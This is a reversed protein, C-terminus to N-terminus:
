PRPALELDAIVGHHDSAGRKMVQFGLFRFRADALVRDIRM